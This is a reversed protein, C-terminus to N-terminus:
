YFLSGDTLRGLGFITEADFEGRMQGKKNVLFNIGIRPPKSLGRLDRLFVCGCSLFGGPGKKLIKKKKRFGRGGTLFFFL